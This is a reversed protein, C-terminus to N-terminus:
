DRRMLLDYAAQAKPSLAGDDHDSYDYGRIYDYDYGDDDTPRIGYEECAAEFGDAYGADYGEDYIDYSYSHIYDSYLGNKKTGTGAERKKQVVKGDLWIYGGDLDIVETAPVDKPFESAHFTTAKSQRWKCLDGNGKVAYPQGSVIGIFIVGLKSLIQVAEHPPIDKLMKFVLETDVSHFLDAFSFLSSITGNMALANHGDKTIFPHCGADCKAGSSTIRTHYIVYDWEKVGKINRYIEENTLKMGKAAAIVKGGRVLAYGNGHGGCRMELYDMLKLIGHARDYDYFDKQNAIFLRCM